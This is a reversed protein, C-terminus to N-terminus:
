QHNTLDPPADFPDIKAPHPGPPSISKPPIGHDEDDMEHLYRTAEPINALTAKGLWYRARERNFIANDKQSSLLLGYNYQGVPDDNEAWIKSWYLMSAANREPYVAYDNLVCAARSSGALAQHELVVIRQDDLPYNEGDTCSAWSLPAQTSLCIALASLLHRKMTKGSLADFHPKM